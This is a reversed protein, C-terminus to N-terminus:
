ESQKEFQETTVVMEYVAYHHQNDTKHNLVAFAEADHYDDFAGVTTPISDECNWLRCTIYKTTM